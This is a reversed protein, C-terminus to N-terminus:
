AEIRTAPQPVIRICADLRLMALIRRNDEGLGALTLVGGQANVQKACSVLWGLFESSCLAADAEFSLQITTLGNRLASRVRAAIDHAVALDVRRPVAIDLAKPM